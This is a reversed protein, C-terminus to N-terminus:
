ARGATPSGANLILGYRERFADIVARMMEPRVTRRNDHWARSSDSTTVAEFCPFYDVSPTSAAVETVASHLVSKAMQNAVIIDEPGYTREIPVPSVALVIKQKRNQDRLVTCVARLHALVEEQRLPRFRFREPDARYLFRLPPGNLALRTRRDFWTETTGVVIVVLDAKFAQAFYDTIAERRGAVADIDGPAARESLSPDLHNAGFPVFFERPFHEKGAAWDIEQRIAAPNYKNLLGKSPNSRLEALTSRPDRSGIQVGSGVLAAEMERAFWPGIVFLKATPSLAFGPRAAPVVLGKAIRTAAPHDGHSWTDFGAPVPPRRDRDRTRDSM